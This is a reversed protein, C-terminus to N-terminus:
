RGLVLWRLRGLLPRRTLGEVDTIRLHLRDVADSHSNLVPITELVKQALQRRTPPKAASM